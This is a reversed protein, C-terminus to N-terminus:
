RSRSMSSWIEISSLLDSVSKLLQRVVQAERQVIVAPTLIPDELGALLYRAQGLADEAAVGALEASRQMLLKNVAEVKRIVGDFQEATHCLKLAQQELSELYDDLIQYIVGLGVRVSAGAPSNVAGPKHKLLHRRITRAVSDANDPAVEDAVAESAANETLGQSEM